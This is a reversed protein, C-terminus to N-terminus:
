QSDHRGWYLSQPLSASLSPLDFFFWLALTLLLIVFGGWAALLGVNRRNQPNLGRDYLLVAALLVVLSIEPLLTLFWDLTVTANM